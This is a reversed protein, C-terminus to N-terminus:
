PFCSELPRTPNKNTLWHKRIVFFSDTRSQSSEPANQCHRLPIRLCPLSRASPIWLNDPEELHNPPELATPRQANETTKRHIGRTDLTRSLHTTAFHSTGRRSGL